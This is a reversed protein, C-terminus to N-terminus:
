EILLHQAVYRANPQRAAVVHLIYTVYDGVWERQKVSALLHIALFVGLAVARSRPPGSFFFLVAFLLM